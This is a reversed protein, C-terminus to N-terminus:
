ENIDNEADDGINKMHSPREENEDMWKSSMEVFVEVPLCYMEEVFEGGLFTGYEETLKELKRSGPKAPLNVEQKDVLVGSALNVHGFYAKYTKITRTIFQM